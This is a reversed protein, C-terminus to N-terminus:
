RRPSIAVKRADGEGISITTVHPSSELAIHVIRRENPPMPELTVTEGSGHVREAVRMALARLSEERRRRYGGVDVGILARTGTKKQAMTNVLYQFSHITEGRRGILMGLDNGTIDIVASVMGVGDGPSSPPRAQVDADIGILDLLDEVIEVAAATIDGGGEEVTRPPRIRPAAPRTEAINGPQPGEDEADDVEDDEYEHVLVVVRAPEGGFGLIGPRGQNVVEVDVESRDVGLQRLANNVAEEVTKGSAEVRDM